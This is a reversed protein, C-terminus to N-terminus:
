VQTMLALVAGDADSVIAVRGVGPVDFLPRRLKGGAAVVDAVIADVDDVAVYTLWHPPVDDLRHMLTMDLFGAVPKGELKAIVYEGDGGALPMTDYTWGAVRAYFAKEAEMDRLHLEAWFLTGHTDAM